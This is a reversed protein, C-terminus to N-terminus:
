LFNHMEGVHTQQSDQQTLQYLRLFEEFDRNFEKTGASKLAKSYHLLGAVARVVFAGRSFGLLWIESQLHEPIKCCDEYVERIQDKFGARSAGTWMKKTWTIDLESGLGHYYKRDQVPDLDTTKRTLAM